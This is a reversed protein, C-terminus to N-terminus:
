SLIQPCNANANGVGFQAVRGEHGGQNVGTTPPLSAITNKIGRKM